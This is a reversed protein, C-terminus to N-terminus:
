ALTIPQAIEVLIETAATATGLRQVMHGATTPITATAAGAVSASLFLEAGVTFGSVATNLNGYYVTAAAGSSVGSLVFGHAQKSTNTADAKRVKLTGTDNYINVFDGASLNEGATISKTEAGFGVPMMSSALRGSTDLAVIKGGDGAGASTDIAAQEVIRGGSHKLYKDPM